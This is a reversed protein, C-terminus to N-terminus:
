RGILVEGNANTVCEVVKVANGGFTDKYTFNAYLPDKMCEKLKIFDYEGSKFWNEFYDYGIRDENEKKPVLYGFQLNGNKTKLLSVVTIEVNEMLIDVGKSTWKYIKRYM